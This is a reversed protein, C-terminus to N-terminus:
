AHRGPGQWERLNAGQDKRPSVRKAGRPVESSKGVKGGVERCANGGIGKHWRVREEQRGSLPKQWPQCSTRWDCHRRWAAHPWQRQRQPGEVGGCQVVWGENICQAVNDESLSGWPNVELLDVGM